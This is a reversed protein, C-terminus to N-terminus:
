WILNVQEPQIIGAVHFRTTEGDRLRFTPIQNLLESMAIRMQRRALHLGACHHIGFGFSLYRPKRNFRIEDPSAFEDPDRGALTTSLAVIEGPMMTVGGIQVERTVIRSTTVQSYARLMEDIADPILEPDDRLRQQDEPHTALHLTQLGIATAVADLGGSYMNFAFGLQEDDSLVSGDDLVARALVGLADDTPNVRRDAIASRLYDVVSRTAEAMAEMSTPHLMAREWKLFQATQDLPLGMIELMVRIPFEFAFDAMFECSNRAAIRDVYYKAHGRIREDLANIAKPSFLPMALARYKTHKPPDCELPLTRWDEGIVQQFPSWGESSFVGPNEYIERLLAAKTVVWTGSGGPGATPAYFVPPGGHLRKTWDEFPNEDTIIGFVFPSDMVLNVPVHPPVAPQPSQNIM